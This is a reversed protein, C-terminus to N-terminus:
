FFYCLSVAAKTVGWYNYPRNEYITDGCMGCEYRSHPAYAYGAGIEFELNWDRNLIFAYGYGVGAGVFKGEVRSDSLMALNGVNFIGGHVHAAIFHGSFRDCFWYRAEPQILIHKWHRDKIHWANINGSLDFTFKPALGIEVGVNITATADYLLNTKVGVTQAKASFASCLVTMIVIVLKKDM